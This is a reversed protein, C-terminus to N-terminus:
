AQCLGSSGLDFSDRRQLDFDLVEGIKAMNEGGLTAGLYFM